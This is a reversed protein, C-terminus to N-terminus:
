KIKILSLISSIYEKITDLESKIYSLVKANDVKAYSHVLPNRFRAMNSLNQSLTSDIIQNDGLVEFLEAYTKPRELESVSIIHAAIDICAEIIELLSYKCAQIDKYSNTFEEKTLIK